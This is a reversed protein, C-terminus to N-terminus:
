SNPKLTGNRLREDLERAVELANLIDERESLKIEGAMARMAVFDHLCRGWPRDLIEKETLTTKSILALQVAHVSEIKSETLDAPNFSYHPIKSGNKIYEAFEDSKKQLDIVGLKKAWKKMFKPLKKDDFASVADQYKNACIFVSLALDSYDPDSGTVFASEVRHLLIVHGLSFPRLRLGLLTVPEPIAALYFDKSM